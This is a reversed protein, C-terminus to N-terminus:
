IECGKGTNRNKVEFEYIITPLVDIVFQNLVVTGVDLKYGRKLFCLCM